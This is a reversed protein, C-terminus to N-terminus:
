CSTPLCWSVPPQHPKALGSTSIGCGGWRVRSRRFDLTAARYEAAFEKESPARGDNKDKYWATFDKMRKVAAEAALTDKLQAYYWGKVRRKVADTPQYLNPLRGGKGAAFVTM